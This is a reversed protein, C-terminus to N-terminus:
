FNTNILIDGKWFSTFNKISTKTESFQLSSEFNIYTKGKINHIQNVKFYNYKKIYISESKWENSPNPLRGNNDLSSLYIPSNEDKFWFFFNFGGFFFDEVETEKAESDIFINFNYKKYGVISTDNNYVSFSPPGNFLGNTFEARQKKSTTKGKNQQFLYKKGAVEIYLVGKGNAENNPAVVKKKCTILLTSILCLCVIKSLQKM